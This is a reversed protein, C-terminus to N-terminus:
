AVNKYYAAATRKQKTPGRKAGLVLLRTQRRAHTHKPASTFLHVGFTFLLLPHNVRPCEFQIM